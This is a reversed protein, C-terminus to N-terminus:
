VLFHCAAPSGPTVEARCLVVSEQVQEDGVLWELIRLPDSHRLRTGSVLLLHAEWAESLIVSLQPGVVRWISLGM